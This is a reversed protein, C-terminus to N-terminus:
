HPRQAPAVPNLTVGLAGLGLHAALVAPLRIVPVPMASLSQLRGALEHAAPENGFGHVAIREGRGESGSVFEQTLEVLRETARASTRPRDVLSVIGNDLTLVPKVHLLTGLLGALTGIRGGRRLQDLNPVTFFVGAEQTAEDVDALLQEPAMGFGASIVADLVVTGLAFGSLHSDVVTVPILADRGALRAAEVTGSLQGSIHISIIQEFGSEALEQYVASFSGPSPRSTKVATGAALALPLERMLEATGEAHIQEGVMVPMPVQRLGKALPHALLEAPISASSDTVIATRGKRSPPLGLRVWGSQTSRVQRIHTLMASQWEALDAM